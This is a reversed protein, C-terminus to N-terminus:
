VQRVTWESDAGRNPIVHAALARSGRDKLILTPISPTGKEKRFFCYDLHVEPVTGMTEFAKPDPHHHVTPMRGAVCSACWPRFPIHTKNHAKRVRESPEHIIQRKTRPDADAAPEEGLEENTARAANDLEEEEDAKDPAGEEIPLLEM